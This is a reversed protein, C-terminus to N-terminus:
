MSKSDDKVLLSVLRDKDDLIPLFFPEREVSTLLSIHNNKDKDYSFIPKNNMFAEVKDNLNYGKLIGRRIDGDTLAGVVISQDDTIFIIGHKNKDIASLCEKFTSNKNVTFHDINM